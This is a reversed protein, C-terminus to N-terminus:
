CGIRIELANNTSITGSILKVSVSFRFTRAGAGTGDDVIAVAQNIDGNTTGDFSITTPSEVVAGSLAAYSANTMDESATILNEVRRAGQIRPESIQSTNLKGEFDKQTATTARTFNAPTPNNQLTIGQTLPLDFVPKTNGNNVVGMSSRPGLYGKM